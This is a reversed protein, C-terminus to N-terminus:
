EVLCVFPTLLKYAGELTLESVAEVWDFPCLSTNSLAPFGAKRKLNKAELFNSRMLKNRTKLILIRFATQSMVTRSERIEM